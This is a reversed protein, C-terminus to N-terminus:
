RDLPRGEGDTPPTITELFTEFDPSEVRVEVRITGLEDGSGVAFTVRDHLAAQKKLAFSFRNGQRNERFVNRATDLIRQEEMREALHDVDHTEALIGSRTRKINADPFITTVARAVRDELETKAVPATVRVDIQYNM